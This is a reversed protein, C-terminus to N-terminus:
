GDSRGELELFRRRIGLAHPSLRDEDIEVIHRRQSEVGEGLTEFADGLDAGYSHVGLEEVSLFVVGDSVEVRVTITQPDPMPTGSAATGGIWPPGSRPWGRGM